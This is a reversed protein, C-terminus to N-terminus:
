EWTQRNLSGPFFTGESPLPIVARVHNTLKWGWWLTLACSVHSTSAELEKQQTEAEFWWSPERRLSGLWRPAPNMWRQEPSSDILPFEALSRHCGNWCVHISYCRKGYGWDDMQGKEDLTQTEFLTPFLSKNLRMNPRPLCNTACIVQLKSYGWWYTFM